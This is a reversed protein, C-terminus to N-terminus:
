IGVLRLSVIATCSLDRSLSKLLCLYDYGLILFPSNRNWNLLFYSIDIKYCNKIM